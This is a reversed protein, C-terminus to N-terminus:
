KVLDQIENYKNYMKLKTRSPMRWIPEAIHTFEPFPIFRFHKYNEGSVEVMFSNFHKYLLELKEKAEPENYNQPRIYPDYIRNSLVFLVKTQPSLNNKEFLGEKIHSNYHSIKDRKSRTLEKKREVEVLFTFERFDHINKARVLIDPRLGGLDAKYNFSFEYDPFNRIFSLVIDIKMSEHEAKDIAKTIEQKFDEERDIAKAGKKTVYYFYQQRKNLPKLEFPVQKFYGTKQYEKIKRTVFLLSGDLTDATYSFLNYINAFQASLLEHLINHQLKKM